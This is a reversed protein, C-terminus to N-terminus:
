LVVAGFARVALPVATGERRQNPLSAGPPAWEGESRGGLVSFDWRDEPERGSGTSPGSYFSPPPLVENGPSASGGLAGLLRSVGGWGRGLCPAAGPSSGLQVSLGGAQVSLGAAPGPRSM